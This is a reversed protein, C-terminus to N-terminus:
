LFDYSVPDIESFCGDPEVLFTHLGFARMKLQKGEAQAYLKVTMNKQNKSSNWLRVILRQSQPEIFMASLIVERDSIELFDGPIEGDGAPFVNLGFPQQQFLQAEWEVMSKRLESAGGALVFRISHVGQEMRALYRHADPILPRGDIPHASYAPSRLLSIYLSNELSHSGYTGSNIITLGNADNFIGNWRQSVNETGDKLLTSTGFMGQGLHTSGRITSPVELKAVCDCENWHIRQELELKCDSQSIRYTQVLYSHNWIFLAEVVTRVAGDEVIRVPPAINDSSHLFEGAEEPTMLRFRGCENGFRNTDMHWPDANDEFIVTALAGPQLYEVNDVSYRDILGTVSNIQVCMTETQIIIPTQLMKPMEPVTHQIKQLVCDFRTIGSPRLTGRFTVKKCWDLNITSAEKEVQSPLVEDNCKVVVTHWLDPDWNQDAMLLECSLDATVPYPHPNYFFVPYEGEAAKRQRALMSMFGRTYLRSLTDLGGGLSHLVSKEAPAISTGPLIDHFESFLLIKQVEALETAPYACLGQIAANALLKETAFLKNELECHLRKLRAMSVYCGVFVPRLDREVVPFSGESQRLAAFFDEPTGHTFRVEPKGAMWENLDSWDRRSPGGGHNGVGWTFLSIDENAKESVWSEAAEAAEGKLTNYGRDLRRALVESGDYGRWIFNRSPLEMRHDEPRMFLYSDYGCRTLLQVLGRDHGFADFSVACTPRANFKEKFYQLGTIMQRLMSEGSPLNCDPQLYWGGIIKWKGSAVLRQIRLFLKRDYEEVWQYLLAENHCFIFGDFEDCFDAATRFTSIAAAAGEPWEWLWIPDLHANCVLFCKKM